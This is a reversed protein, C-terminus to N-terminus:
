AAFAVFVHSGRDTYYDVTRKFVNTCIGTSCGPTFGFQYDDFKDVSKVHVSLVNEFLKSLSTSIAIARYNNVDSLDGIKSKVLPVFVSHMFTDPIYGVKVFLNFLLSVHVFLRSGGHIFAEMAVGDPGVAKGCQQRSCIEAVDRVTINAASCSDLGELLRQELLARSNVDVISNYVKNYHQMWMETVENIGTRGGVSVAFQTANANNSKKVYNWFKNYNKTALSIAFADSRLTNEHQRCYRLALKFRARSKKMQMFEHGQRPKGLVVWALFADRAVLHKGGVIDNWGPIVQDHLVSFRRVPLCSHSAIKICSLIDNYYTDIAERVADMDPCVNVVPIHVNLLLNDICQKYGLIDTVSVRSWDILSDEGLGEQGSICTSFNASINDFQVALPKHDSSIFHHQVKVNNINVDLTPSCLVHDLWSEYLGNDSYYTSVNTLRTLDSLMLNNTDAFCSFANYFRSGPSCNFDGMVVINVADCNNYLGTIESCTDIYCELSDHDGKDVPMYVCVVLIPGINSNFIVATIRPDDTDVPIICSM